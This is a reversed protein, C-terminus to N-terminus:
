TFDVKWGVIGRDRMDISGILGATNNNAGNRLKSANM